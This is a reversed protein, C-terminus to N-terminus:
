CLFYVFALIQLTIRKNIRVFSIKLFCVLRSNINIVIRIFTFKYKYSNSYFFKKDSLFDRHLFDLLLDLM